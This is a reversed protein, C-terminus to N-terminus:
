LRINFYRDATIQSFSKPTNQELPTPPRPDKSPALSELPTPPRPDNIPALPSPEQLIPPLAKFSFPFPTPPRSAKTPLPNRGFRPVAPLPQARERARTFRKATITQVNQVGDPRPAFNPKSEYIILLGDKLILGATTAGYLSHIEHIKKMVGVTRGKWSKERDKPQSPGQDQDELTLLDMATEKKTKEAEPLKKLFGPDSEYVDLEGDKMVLLATKAGFIWHLDHVKKKAGHTRTAWPKLNSPRISSAPRAM